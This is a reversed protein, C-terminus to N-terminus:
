RARATSATGGVIEHRAAAKGANAQRLVRVRDLGLREVIDATADLSGDRAISSRRRRGCGSRPSTAATSAPV